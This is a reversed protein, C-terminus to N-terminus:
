FHDSCITPLQFCSLLTFKTYWYFRNFNWLALQCLPVYIYMLPSLHNSSTPLRILKQLLWQDHYRILINTPHCSEVHSGYRVTYRFKSNLTYLQSMDYWEIILKEVSINILSLWSNFEFLSQWDCLTESVAMERWNINGSLFEVATEM